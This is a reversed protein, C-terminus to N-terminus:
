QKNGQQFSCVFVQLTAVRVRLGWPRPAPLPRRVVAGQIWGLAAHRAIFSATLSGARNYLARCAIMSRGASAAPDM